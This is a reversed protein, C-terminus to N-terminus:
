LMMSEIIDFVKQAVNEGVQGLNCTCAEAHKAVPHTLLYLKVVIDASYWLQREFV